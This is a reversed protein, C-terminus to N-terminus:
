RAMNKNILSIAHEQDNSLSYNDTRACGRDRLEPGKRRDGVVQVEAIRRRDHPGTLWGKGTRDGSQLLGEPRLKHFTGRPTDEQRRGPFPDGPM